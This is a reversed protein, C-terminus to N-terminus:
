KVGIASGPSQETPVPHRDGDKNDGNHPVLPRATPEALAATLRLKKEIDWSHEKRKAIIQEAPSLRLMFMTQM